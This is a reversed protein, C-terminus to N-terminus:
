QRLNELTALQESLREIRADREVIAANLREIEDSLRRIEEAATGGSQEAIRLQYSRIAERYGDIETEYGEVVSLYEEHSWQLMDLLEQERKTLMIVSSRFRAAEVRFSTPYDAVVAEFMQQAEDLRGLNILAEGSWYLANAVFLSDPYRSAFISLSELTAEYQQQLFFLRGRQYQAEENFEHNPFTRIYYELNEEAVPLDDLAMASKAAWFRATAEVDRTAPSSLATLFSSLAGQFDNQRFAELGNEVNQQSTQGFLTGVTGLAVLLLTTYFRHAM